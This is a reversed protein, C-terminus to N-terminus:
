PIIGWQQWRKGQWKCVRHACGTPFVQVPNEGLYRNLTPWRQQSFGSQYNKVSGVTKVKASTCQGNNINRKLIGELTEQCWVLEEPVQFRQWEWDSHKTNMGSSDMLIDDKSLWTLIGTLERLSWVGLEPSKCLWHNPDHHESHFINVRIQPIPTKIQTKM